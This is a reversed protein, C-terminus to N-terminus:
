PDLASRQPCTLPSLFRPQEVLWMPLFFTINNISCSRSFFYRTLALGALLVTGINKLGRTPFSSKSPTSRSVVSIQTDLLARLTKLQTHLLALKRHTELLCRLWRAAVRRKHVRHAVRPDLLWGDPGM